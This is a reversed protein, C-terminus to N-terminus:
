RIRCQPGTGEPLGEDDLFLAPAGAVDGGLRNAAPPQLSSTTLVALAM